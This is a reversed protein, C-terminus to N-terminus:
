KKKRKNGNQIVVRDTAIVVQGKILVPGNITTTREFTEPVGGDPGAVPAAGYYAILVKIGGAGVFRYEYGKLVMGDNTKVPLPSWRNGNTKDGKAYCQKSWNQGSESYETSILFNEECVLVQGDVTQWLRANDWIRARPMITADVVNSSDIGSQPAPPHSSGHAFVSSAGWLLIIFALVLYLTRRNM